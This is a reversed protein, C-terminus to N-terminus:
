RTLPRRCLRQRWCLTCQPPFPSFHGGTVANLLLAIYYIILVCKATDNSAGVYIRGVGSSLMQQIYTHSTPGRLHPFFCAVKRSLEVILSVRRDDLPLLFKPIGGPSFVISFDLKQCISILMCRCHHTNLTYFHHEIHLYPPILKVSVVLQAQAHFFPLLFTPHCAWLLSRCKGRLCLGRLLIYTNHSTQKLPVSLTAALHLRDSAETVVCQRATSQVEAVCLLACV